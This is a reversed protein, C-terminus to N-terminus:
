LKLVNEWLGQEEIFDVADGIDAVDSLNDHTDTGITLGIGSERVLRYFEINCRYAPKIYLEEGDVPHLAVRMNRRTPCLEVFIDEKELVDALEEREVDPFALDVDTHALGVPCDIHRRVAVLEDLGFGKFLGVYEFLIFDLRNCVRRPIGSEAMNPGFAVEMGAAVRIKGGYRERVKDVAGIYSEVSPVDNPGLKTGSFCHDSIGVAELGKALAEAVIVAPLFGGDSFVTHNHYNIMRRKL